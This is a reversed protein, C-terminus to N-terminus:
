KVNVQTYSAAAAAGDDDLASRFYFFAGVAAALHWSAHTLHYIDRQESVGDTYLSSSVLRLTLAAAGLALALGLQRQREVPWARVTAWHPIFGWGVAALVHLTCLTAISAVGDHLAVVLVYTLLSALMGYYARWHEGRWQRLVPTVMALLSLYAAMMDRALATDGSGAEPCWRLSSSATTTACSHYVASAMSAALILTVEPWYVKGPGGRQWLVWAPALFAFSSLVSYLELVSM